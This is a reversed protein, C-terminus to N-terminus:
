YELELRHNEYVSIMRSIAICVKLINSCSKKPIYLNSTFLKNNRRETLLERLFIQYTQQFSFEVFILLLVYAISSASTRARLNCM